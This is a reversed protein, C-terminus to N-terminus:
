IVASRIASIRRSPYRRNPRVGSYFALWRGIPRAVREPRGSKEVAVAAEVVEALEIWIAMSTTKMTSPCCDPSDDPLGVSSVSPLVRGDILGTRIQSARRGAPRVCKERKREKKFTIGSQWPSQRRRSGIASTTRMQIVVDSGEVWQSLSGNYVPSTAHKLDGGLEVQILSVFCFSFIGDTQFYSNKNIKKKKVNLTPNIFM